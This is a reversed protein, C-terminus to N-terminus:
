NWSLGYPVKPCFLVPVASEERILKTKGEQNNNWWHKMREDAM